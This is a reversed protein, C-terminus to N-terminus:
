AYSPGYRIKTRGRSQLGRRPGAQINHYTEVLGPPLLSVSPVYSHDMYRFLIRAILRSIVDYQRDSNIADKWSTSRYPFPAEALSQFRKEIEPDVQYVQSNFCNDMLSRIGIDLDRMEIKYSSYAIRDTFCPLVALTTKAPTYQEKAGTMPIAGIESRSGGRNRARFFFFSAVATLLIGGLAAGIGIGGAQAPSISHEQPHNSAGTPDVPTITSQVTRSNPNSTQNQTTIIPQVTTSGPDSTTNQMVVDNLSVTIQTGALTYTPGTSTNIVLGDQFFITGPLDVVQRSPPQGVLATISANPLTFTLGLSAVQLSDQVIITGPLPVVATTVTTVTTVM